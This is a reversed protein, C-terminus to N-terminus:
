EIGFHRRLQEVCEFAGAKGGVPYTGEVQQHKLAIETCQNICEQIVLEAIKERSFSEDTHLAINCVGKECFPCNTIYAQEWLANLGDNM